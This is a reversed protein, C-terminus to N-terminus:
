SEFPNEREFDPRYYDQSEADQIWGREMGLIDLENVIIKYENNSVVRGLANHGIAKYVPYYQSMLSIHIKPSLEEAIFHLVRKSNETHGPLVLHRIILGSLAQGKEDLILTSGKQRYMEKLASTAVEKYDSVGSYDKSIKNDMYKLDPLYIDIMGELSRLTEVKDYGNSNYVFVCKEGLDRLIRIIMKVHPVMHSPSVFGVAHCGQRLYFRIKSILADFSLDSKPYAATNSSIQYNQCYICQLNCHMFFINCIGHKGSIIPEEGFHPGVSSILLEPGCNCWGKESKFRDVGCEHPCINCDSFIKLEEGYFLIEDQEM